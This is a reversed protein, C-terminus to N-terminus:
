VTRGVFYIMIIKTVGFSFRRFSSGEFTLPRAVRQQARTARSNRLTHKGAERSPGLQHANVGERKQSCTCTATSRPAAPVPSDPNSRPAARSRDLANAKSGSHPVRERSELANRTHAQAPRYTSKLHATTGSNPRDNEITSRTTRLLSLAHSSHLAKISRADTGHLNSGIKPLTAKASANLEPHSLATATVVLSDSRVNGVALTGRDTSVHVAVDATCYSCHLRLTSGHDVLHRLPSAARLGEHDRPSAASLGNGSRREQTSLCLSLKRLDGLSNLPHNARPTEQEAVLEQAQLALQRRGEVHGTGDADARSRIGDVQSEAREIDSCAVLDDRLRM